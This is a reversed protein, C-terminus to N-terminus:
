IENIDRFLAFAFWEDREYVRVTRRKIFSKPPSYYYYYRQRRSVAVEKQKEKELSLSLSFIKLFGEKDNVLFLSSYSSSTFSKSSSSSSSFFFLAM